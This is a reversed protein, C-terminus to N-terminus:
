QVVCAAKESKISVGQMGPQEKVKALARRLTKRGLQEFATDYAIRTVKRRKPVRGAAGAASAPRGKIGGQSSSQAVRQANRAYEEVLGINTYVPLNQKAMMSHFHDIILQFNNDDCEAIAQEMGQKIFWKDPHRSQTWVNAVFLGSSAKASGTFRRQNATRVRGGATRLLAAGGWM